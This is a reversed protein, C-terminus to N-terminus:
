SVGSGDAVPLWKCTLEVSIRNNADSAIDALAFSGASETYARVVITGANLDIAGLQVFSLASANLQLSCLAGLIGRLGRYGAKMTITWVGTSTHAVSSIWNGRIGSSAPTSASNPIFSGSLKLEGKHTTEATQRTIAYPSAM